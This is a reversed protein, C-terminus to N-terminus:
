KKEIRMQDVFTNFKDITLKKTFGDAVNDDGAVKTFKIKGNRVMDRVFHYRRDIWKTSSTYGKGDTVIQANRSDTRLQLPENEGMLDLETCLNKLFLGERVALAYLLKVGQDTAVPAFAEDYDIGPRQRNGCVVWRARYQLIDGNNDRKTDFVWKGPLVRAEKAEKEDVYTWADTDELKKVQTCMADHWEEAEPQAIAEKYTNPIVINWTKKMLGADKVGPEIDNEDETTVFSPIFTDQDEMFLMGAHRGYALWEEEDFRVGHTGKGPRASRRPQIVTEEPLASQEIPSLNIEATLTL